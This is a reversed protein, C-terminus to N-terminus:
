YIHLSSRVAMLDNNHVNNIPDALLPYKESIQLDKLRQIEMRTKCKPMYFRKPGILSSIPLCYHRKCAPMPAIYDSEKQSYSQSKYLNPLKGPHKLNNTIPLPFYVKKEIKMSDNALKKVNERLTKYVNDLIETNSRLNNNDNRCSVTYNTIGDM